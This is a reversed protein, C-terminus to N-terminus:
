HEDVLMHKQARLYATEVQSTTTTAPQITQPALPQQNRLKAAQEQEKALRQKEELTLSMQASLGYDFKVVHFLPSIKNLHATFDNGYEILNHLQPHLDMKKGMLGQAELSIM